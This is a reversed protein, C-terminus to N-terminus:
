RWRFYVETTDSYKKFADAEVDLEHGSDSHYKKRWQLIKEARPKIKKRIMEYAPCPNEWIAMVLHDTINKADRMKYGGTLRMFVTDLLRAAAATKQAVLADIFDEPASRDEVFGSFGGPRNGSFRYFQNRHFKQLVEFWATDPHERMMSFSVDSLRWADEMMRNKIIPIDEKKGFRSLGYLAKEVDDFASNYKDFPRGSRTAMDRIYPYFKGQPPLYLLKNYASALYNHKTIVAEITKNLSEETKWKAHDLVNDSVCNFLIGWEGADTPVIATDDLHNMVLEFHDFNEKYQLTLFATSRLVPHESRTLLLLEEDTVTSDLRYYGVVGKSVIRELDPQLDKRFDRIAYPYRNDNNCSFILICLLLAPLYSHRM